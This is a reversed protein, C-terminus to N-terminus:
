IETEYIENMRECGSCERGFHARCYGCCRTRCSRCTFKPCKVGCFQDLRLMGEDQDVGCLKKIDNVCMRGHESAHEKCFPHYCHKCTTTACGCSHYRTKCDSDGCLKRDPLHEPIFMRMFGVVSCVNQRPKGEDVEEALFSKYAECLEKQQTARTEQIKSLRPKITAEYAVQTRQTAEEQLVLQEEALEKTAMQLVARIRRVKAATESARLKRQADQVAEQLISDHDKRAAAWAEKAQREVQQSGYPFQEHVANGALTQLSPLPVRAKADMEDLSHMLLGTIEFTDTDIDIDRIVKGDADFGLKWEAKERIEKDYADRKEMTTCRPPYREAFEGYLEVTRGM